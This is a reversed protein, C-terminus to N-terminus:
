YTTSGQNPRLFWVGFNTCSYWIKCTSSGKNKIIVNFTKTSMHKSRKWESALVEPHKKFNLWKSSWKYNFHIGYAFLSLPFFSTTILIFLIKFNPVGGTTSIVFDLQVSNIKHEHVWLTIKLLTQIHIHIAKHVFRTAYEHLLHVM